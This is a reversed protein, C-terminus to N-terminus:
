DAPNLVVLSYDKINALKKIQELSVKNIGKEYKYYNEAGGHIEEILLNVAMEASGESSLRKGGILQIKCDELEKESINVMKRFEDITIKIAEDVKLKDTGMYILLYGFNSGLEVETKITYVLGRKERVETFLKSSMGDGLISNFVEVAYREKSNAVPFHFGIAINSQEVGGRSEISKDIKEIPKKIIPNEGDSNVLLKKALLVVDELPNNGVVCLISNKPCYIKGRVRLLQERSFGLVNEETGGINMGFPKEYLCEKLKNVVYHRPSDKYMKLEECIVLSEKKIEEEPFTPNFFIDFLVDMAIDLKESPVKAFYATVDEDTFANLDGGVREVESSIQLTSRKNTGKFAMHELFHAIGKTKEDENVAGYRVGLMVTTVPVDRKEHLITLGSDLVVKKFKM